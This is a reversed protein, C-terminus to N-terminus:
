ICLEYFVTIGVHDVLAALTGADFTTGGDAPPAGADVVVGRAVISIGFAPDNLDQPSYGELWADDQAGYEVTTPLTPWNGPAVKSDKSRARGFALRVGQDAVGSLSGARRVHVIIGIVAADLPVRMDFGDIVLEQTSKGAEVAATAYRGDALTVENTTVWEGSSSPTPISRGRSPSSPGFSAVRRQCIRQADPAAGDGGGAGGDAAAPPDSSCGAVTLWPTLWPM